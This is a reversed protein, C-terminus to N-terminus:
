QQTKNKPPGESPQETNNDSVADEAIQKLYETQQEELEVAQKNLQTQKREEQMQESHNQKILESSSQNQYIACLSLIVGILAIIKSFSPHSKLIHIKKDADPDPLEISDDAATFVGAVAESFVLAEDTNNEFTKKAIDVVSEHNAKAADRIESRNQIVTQKIVKFDEKPIQDLHGLFSNIHSINIEKLASSMDISASVLAEPLPEVSQIGFDKQIKVSDNYLAMFDPDSMLRQTELIMNKSYGLDSPDM